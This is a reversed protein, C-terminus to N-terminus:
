GRLGPLKPHPLKLRPLKPHNPNPYRIEPNLNFGGSGPKLSPMKTGGMKRSVMVKTLSDM